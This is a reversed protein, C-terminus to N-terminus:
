LDNHPKNTNLFCHLTRSLPDDFPFQVLSRLLFSSHPQSAFYALRSSARSISSSRLHAGKFMNSLALFILRDADKGHM